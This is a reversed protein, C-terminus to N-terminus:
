RLDSFGEGVPASRRASLLSLPSMGLHQKMGSALAVTLSAEFGLVGFGVAQFGFQYMGGWAVSLAALRSVLIAPTCAHLINRSQLLTEAAKNVPALVAAGLLPIFLGVFFTPGSGLWAEFLAQGNFAILLGVFGSSLVVALTARRVQLLLSRRGGGTSSALEPYIASMLLHSPQTLLSLLTRHYFFAAVLTGGAFAKIGILMGQEQVMLALPIALFGVSQKLLLRAEKWCAIAPRVRLWPTLRRADAWLIATGLSEALTVALIYGVSDLGATLVVIGVAVCASRQVGRIMLARANRQAFRHSGTLLLAFQDQFFRVLSICLIAAADLPKLAELHAGLEPGFLALAAAVVAASGAMSTAVLVLASNFTVLAGSRNGHISYSAIRNLAPGLLSNGYAMVATPIAVLLLWDSYVGDGWERAFLPTLLIAGAFQAGRGLTTGGLNKLLRAKMENPAPAGLIHKDTTVTREWGAKRSAAFAPFSALGHVLELVGM